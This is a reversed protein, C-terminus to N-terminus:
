FVKLEPQSSASLKGKTGVAVVEETQRDEAFMCLDLCARIGNSMQMIVFANDIIDPTKDGYKENLHNVDQKGSAYVKVAESQTIFRMLDFFHCCKEILTGGTNISFRNWDDVKELFPFRHERITLM